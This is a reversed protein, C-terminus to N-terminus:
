LSVSSLKTWEDRFAQFPAPRRKKRKQSSSSDSSLGATSTSSSRYGQATLDSVSRHETPAVHGCCTTCVSPYDVFAPQTFNDPRYASAPAQPLDDDNDNRVKLQLVSTPSLSDADVVYEDGDDPMYPAAPTGSVISTCASRNQELQIKLSEIERQQTNLIKSMRTAERADAERQTREKKLAHLCTEALEKNERARRKYFENARVLDPESM